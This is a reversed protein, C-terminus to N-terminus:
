LWEVEFLKQEASVNKGNEALIKKIKCNKEARIENMVKMAEVICLVAGADVTSNERVFSDSTPSPSRYFTGMLPSRVYSANDPKKPSNEQPKGENAQPVPSVYSGNQHNNNNKKQRKIIVRSKDQEISLDALGEQRMFEYLEKIQEIDKEILKPNESSNKKAGTM